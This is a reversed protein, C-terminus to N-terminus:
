KSEPAKAAKEAAAKEKEANEKAAKEAAAKEAALEEESKAAEIVARKVRNDNSALQELWGSPVIAGPPPYEAGKSITQKTVRDIFKEKARYTM